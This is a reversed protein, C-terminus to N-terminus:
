AQSFKIALKEIPVRKIQAQNKFAFALEVDKLKFQEVFELAQDIMGFNCAEAPDSTWQGSGKVYLGTTINRLLTRM